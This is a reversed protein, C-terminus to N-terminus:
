GQKLTKHRSTGSDSDLEVDYHGNICHRWYVAWQIVEVIM